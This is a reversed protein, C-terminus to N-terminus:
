NTGAFFVVLYGNCTGTTATNPVIGVGYYEYDTDLLSNNGQTNTFLTASESSTTANSCIGDDYYSYTTAAPIAGEIRQTYTETNNGTQLGYAYLRAAADLSPDETLAAIGDEIRYGGIVQAFQMATFQSPDDFPSVTKTSSSTSAQSSSTSTNKPSSDAHHKYIGYAIGAIIIVAAVVIIAVLKQNAQTKHKAKTM